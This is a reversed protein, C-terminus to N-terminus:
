GNAGERALWASEALADAALVADYWTAAEAVGCTKSVTAEYSDIHGTLDMAWLYNNARKARAQWKRMAADARIVAALTEDNLEYEPPLLSVPITMTFEVERKRPEGFRAVMVADAKAWAEAPTASLTDMKRVHVGHGGNSEMWFINACVSCGDKTETYVAEPRYGGYSWREIFKERDTM